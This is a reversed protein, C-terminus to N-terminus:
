RKLSRAKEMINNALANVIADKMGSPISTDHDKQIEDWQNRSLITDEVAETFDKLEAIRKGRRIGEDLGEQKGQQWAWFWYCEGYCGREFQKCYTRGKRVRYNPCRTHPSGMRAGPAVPPETRKGDQVRRRATYLIDRITRSEDKYFPSGGADIHKFQEILNEIMSSLYFYATEYPWEYLYSREAVKKPMKLVTENADLPKDMCVITVTEKLDITRLRWQIGNKHFSLGGCYKCSYDKKEM